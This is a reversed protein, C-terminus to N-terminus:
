MLSSSFSLPPSCCQLDHCEGPATVYAPFSHGFHLSGSSSSPRSQVSNGRFLCHFLFIPKTPSFNNQSQCIVNTETRDALSDRSSVCDMMHESKHHKLHCNFPRSCGGLIKGRRRFLESTKDSESCGRAKDGMEKEMLLM